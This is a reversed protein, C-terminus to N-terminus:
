SSSLFRVNSGPCIWSLELLSISVQFNSETAVMPQLTPQLPTPPGHLRSKKRTYTEKAMGLASAVRKKQPQCSGLHTSYANSLAFKRSCASCQFFHSTDPALDPDMQSNEM